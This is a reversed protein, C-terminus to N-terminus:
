TSCHLCLSSTTGISSDCSAAAETHKYFRSTKLHQLQILSSHMGIGGANERKNGRVKEGEGGWGGLATYLFRSLTFLLRLPIICLAMPSNEAAEVKQLVTISSSHWGKFGHCLCVCVCLPLHHQLTKCVQQLLIWLHSGWCSRASKM